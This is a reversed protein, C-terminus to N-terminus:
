GQKHSSMITQNWQTTCTCHWHTTLNIVYWGKYKHYRFPRSFIIFLNNCRVSYCLVIRHLYLFNCMCLCLCVSVTECVHGANVYVHLTIGLPHYWLAVGGKVKLYWQHVGGCKIIINIKTSVSWMWVRLM